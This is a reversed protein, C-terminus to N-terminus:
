LMPAGGPHFRRIAVAGVRRNTEGAGPEWGEPMAGRSM